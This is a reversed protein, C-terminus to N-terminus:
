LGGVGAEAVQEEAARDRVRILQAAVTGLLGAAVAVGFGAAAGHVDILAGGLAAGPAVGAVLGTQIVSMGETLRERPVCQEVLTLTAIMTPAIVCGGVLLAAAMLWPSDIVLLPVMTATLVAMGVRVRVEPGRAWAITGSVLGGVLSGLAWVGLLPGALAPAGQEESFAVVAVEAVGFLAGLALGVLALPAILGWGLPVRPGASVARPRAPPATRRQAAFTLTGVLGCAAAVGLAWTPHWLTALTTVLVPGVVFVLEDLVSELAYATQVDRRERLVHSWRARVSAGIQPVCAGALAAFAYTAGSGWDQEVALAMLALAATFGSVALPLVRWQGHSDLLRGHLLAFLAQALVYTASVTGALGYSDTAREVLLVIGLGVTSSPIRAVLASSSFALAGPTSLVRRYPSFMGLLNVTQLRKGVITLM